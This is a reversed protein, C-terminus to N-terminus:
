RAYYKEKIIDDINTSIKELINDILSLLIKKENYASNYASSVYELIKLVVNFVYESGLVKIFGSVYIFNDDFKIRLGKVRADKKDLWDIFRELRFKTVEDLM